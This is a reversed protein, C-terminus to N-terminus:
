DGADDPRPHHSRSAAGGAPAPAGRTRERRRGGPIRVGRPCRADGERVEHDDEVVLIPTMDTRVIPVLPPSAAESEAAALARDVLEVLGGAAAKIRGVLQGRQQPDDGLEDIMEAYGLIVHLPTRLEHSLTALLELHYVDPAGRAIAKRDEAM